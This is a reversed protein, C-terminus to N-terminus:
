SVTEATLWATITASTTSAFFLKVYRLQTQPLTFHIQQATTVAPLTYPNDTYVPGSTAKSAITTTVSGCMATINIVGKIPTGEGMGTSGLDIEVGTAAATAGGVTIAATFAMATGFILEYDQLNQKAM